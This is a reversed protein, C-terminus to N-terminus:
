FFWFTLGFAWTESYLIADYKITEHRKCMLMTIVNLMIQLMFKVRLNEFYM